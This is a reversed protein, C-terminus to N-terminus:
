QQATITRLFAALTGALVGREYQAANAPRESGDFRGSRWDAHLSRIADALARDSCPDAVVGIGSARVLDAADGEPLAGLIPRGTALYEYAKGPVIRSRHGAPLGHLPLFLVDAERIFRVSAAHKQYGVFTVADAVGSERVCRETWEDKQGVVVLKAARGAPDGAARLSRIAGLLHLPTRGSPLIPEPVHRVLAALRKSLSTKPYLPKSLFSGTFVIRMPADPDAAPAVRPAPLPFDDAEWGNTVVTCREPALAPELELFLRRSEKTNAVVGDARRLMRRMEDRERRWHFWTRYSQWGDLAWPDRLDFVVPIRHRDGLAAATRWMEFPSMTALIADPRERAIAEDARREAAALFQALGGADGPTRLVTASREVVDVLTADEPEWYSRAKPPTRTVVTCDIGLRPLHKVFSTPRQTGAGGDPPFYYALLLLRM